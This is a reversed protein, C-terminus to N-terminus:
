SLAYLTLNTITLDINPKWSYWSFCLTFTNPNRFDIVGEIQTLKIYYYHDQPQLTFVIRETSNGFTDSIKAFFSKSASNNNIIRLGLITGNLLNARTINIRIWQPGVPLQAIVPSELLEREEIISPIIYFRISGIQHKEGWLELFELSPMPFNKNGIRREIMFVYIKSVNSYNSLIIQSFNQLSNTTFLEQCITGNNVIRDMDLGVYYLLLQAKHQPLVIDRDDLLSLFSLTSQVDEEKFYSYTRKVRMLDYIILPSAVALVVICLFVGRWSINEFIKGIKEM